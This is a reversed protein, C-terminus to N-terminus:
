MDESEGGKEKEEGEGEDMQGPMNDDDMDM